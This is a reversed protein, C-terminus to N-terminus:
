FSNLGIYCEKGVTKKRKRDLLANTGEKAPKHDSLSLINYIYQMVIRDVIMNEFM